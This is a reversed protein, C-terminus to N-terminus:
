SNYIDDAVDFFVRDSSGTMAIQAGPTFIYTPPAALVELSSIFLLSVFIFFLRLYMSIDYCEEVRQALM